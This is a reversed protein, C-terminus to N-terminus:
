PLVRLESQPPTCTTAEAERSRERCLRYRRPIPQLAIIEIIMRLAARGASYARSSKKEAAMLAWCDESLSPRAGQPPAV